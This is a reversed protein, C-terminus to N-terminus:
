KNYKKFIQEVTSRNKLFLDAFTPDFHFGRDDNIIQFAKDLPMAEKYCRKSVLADFVDAIAMIRASVPIKEKEWHNPYGKGDWREHHCMAIESAMQIFYSDESVGITEKIIRRGETTHKQMVAFEEADLRDPKQLISDPVVIKGIDHMPAARKITDVFEETIIDPLYNKEFAKSAILEVYASTRQIHDGTDQDRNEVLSALINIIHNQLMFVKDNRDQLEKTKAEVQAELNDEIRNLMFTSILVGFIIIFLSLSLNIIRVKYLVDEPLIFVPEISSFVIDLYIFLVASLISHIIAPIFNREAILLTLLGTSIIFYHFSATFGIYYDAFIQHTAVEILALVLSLLYKKKFTTLLSLVLFVTVSFFNFYYMPTIRYKHFFFLFSLHYGFAFYSFIMTLVKGRNKRVFLKTLSSLAEKM